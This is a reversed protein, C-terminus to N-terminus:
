IAPRGGKAQGGRDAKALGRKRAQAQQEADNKDCFLRHCIGRDADSLDQREAIRDDNKQHTKSVADRWGGKGKRCGHPDVLWGHEASARLGGLMRKHYSEARKLHLRAATKKLYAGLTLRWLRIMLRPPFLLGAVAYCGAARLVFVIREIMMLVLRGITGYYLIFGSLMGIPAMARPIGDNTFYILLTMVIGWLIGFFIDELLIAVGRLIRQWLMEAAMPRPVPKHLLPLPREYLRGVRRSPYKVGLLVRTIRIVDWVLGMGAGCVVGWLLMGMLREPDIRISPSPVALMM